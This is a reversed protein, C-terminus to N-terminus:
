VGGEEFFKQLKEKALAVSRTIVQYACNEIEAIQEFSLGHGHYLLFRRRQTSTLAALAAQLSVADDVSEELPKPPAKMREALQSESLAFRERHREGSRIQRLDHRRFDDLALYVELSVEVERHIGDGDAFAAYYRPAGDTEGTRVTYAPKNDTM